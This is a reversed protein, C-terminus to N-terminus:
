SLSTQNAPCAAAPWQVHAAVPATREALQGVSDTHRPANFRRKFCQLVPTTLRPRLTSEGAQNAKTEAPQLHRFSRNHLGAIRFSVLRIENPRDARPTRTERISMVNKM